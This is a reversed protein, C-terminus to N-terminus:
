CKLIHLIPDVYIPTFLLKCYLVYLIITFYMFWLYAYMKFIFCLAEFGYRAQFTHYASKLSPRLSRWRRANTGHTIGEGQLIALGLSKERSFLICVKRYLISIHHSLM